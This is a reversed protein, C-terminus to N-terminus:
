MQKAELITAQACLLVSTLHDNNATLDIAIVGNPIGSGHIKRTDGRVKCTILTREYVNTQTTAYYAM